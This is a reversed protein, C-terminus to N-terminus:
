LLCNGKLDTLEGVFVRGNEPNLVINMIMAQWRAPLAAFANGEFAMNAAM